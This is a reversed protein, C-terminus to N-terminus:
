RKWPPLSEPPDASLYPIRLTVGSDFIVTGALSPNAEMIDAARFEDNYADLAIEDFTDGTRTVYDYGDIVGM